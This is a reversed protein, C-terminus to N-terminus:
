SCDRHAKVDPARKENEIQEDAPQLMARRHENQKCPLSVQYRLQLPDTRM